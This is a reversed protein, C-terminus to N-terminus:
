YFEASFGNLSPAKNHEMQFIAEQVENITFPRLFLDNEEQSVQVINDVRSEDLAFSSPKPQDFLDKYYSTIYEKLANDDETVKDEDNYNSYGQKGISGM